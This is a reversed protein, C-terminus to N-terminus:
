SMILKRCCMRPRSTRILLLAQSKYTRRVVAVWTFLLIALVAIGAGASFVARNRESRQTADLQSAIQSLFLSMGQAYIRKQTEYEESFLIAHAESAKGARVLTFAQDEMEVLRFNATKTQTAIQSPALQAIENIANDLPSEFKRYRAEWQPDGTAVAMRASMTLVEDLHIITGRLEAARWVRARMNTDDAYSNYTSWVLWAIVAGTVVFAITFLKIWFRHGATTLEDTMATTVFNENDPM